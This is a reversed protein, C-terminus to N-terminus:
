SPKTPEQPVPPTQIQQILKKCDNIYRRLLSLKTEDRDNM